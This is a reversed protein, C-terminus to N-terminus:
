KDYAYGEIRYHIEDMLINVIHHFEEPTRQPHALWNKLWTVDPHQDNNRPLMMVRILVPAVERELANM